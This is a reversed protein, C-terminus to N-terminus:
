NDFLGDGESGDTETGIKNVTYFKDFGDRETRIKNVM